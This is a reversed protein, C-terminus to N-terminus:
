ATLSREGRASSFDSGRGRLRLQLAPRAGRGGRGAGGPGPLEGRRRKRGRLKKEPPAGPPSTPHVVQEFGKTNFPRDWFWAELIFFASM